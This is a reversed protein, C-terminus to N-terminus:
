VYSKAQFSASGRQPTRGLPSTFTPLTGVRGAYPPCLVLSKVAQHTGWGRSGLKSTALFLPLVAQSPRQGSTTPCACAGMAQLTPLTCRFLRYARRRFPLCRGCKFSYGSSYTSAVHLTPLSARDCRSFMRRFHAACM